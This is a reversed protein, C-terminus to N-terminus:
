KESSQASAAPAHRLRISPTAGRRRETSSRVGGHTHVTLVGQLTADPGEPGHGDGRVARSRSFSSLRSEELTAAGALREALWATYIAERSVGSQRAHAGRERWGDPLQEM